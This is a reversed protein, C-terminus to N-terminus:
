VTVQQRGAMPNFDPPLPLFLPLWKEAQTTPMHGECTTLTTGVADGASWRYTQSKGPSGCPLTVAFQTIKGILMLKLTAQGGVGGIEKQWVNPGAKQWATDTIVPQAYVSGAFLAALVSGFFKKM